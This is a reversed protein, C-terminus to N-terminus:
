SWSGEADLAAAARHVMDLRAAQTLTHPTVSLTTVGSEAYAHM